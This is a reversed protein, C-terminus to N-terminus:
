EAKGALARKGSRKEVGKRAVRPAAEASGPSKVVTCNGTNQFQLIFGNACLGISIGAILVFFVNFIGKLVIMVKNM